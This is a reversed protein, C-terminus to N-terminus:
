QNFKMINKNYLYIFDVTEDKICFSIGEDYMNLYKCSRVDREELDFDKLLEKIYGIDRNVLEFVNLSKIFDNKESKIM